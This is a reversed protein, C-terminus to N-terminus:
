EAGSARPGGPALRTSQPGLHIHAGTAKGPVAQWFAFYPIRNAELYQRLWMGEPQDPNLAVDVRGTHDFGLARHLATEGMASVPLPKGFRSQYASQVRAFREPGFQGDGEFQEAMGHDVLGHETVSPATVSRALRPLSAEAQAMAALQRTVDAVQQALDREKRAFELDASLAALGAPVALGGDVLKKTKEFAQERREVRRTAAALMEEAQAETLDRNRLSESLVAEDEADAVEEKAEDLQARPAAGAEVLWQLKQVRERAATLQQSEAAWAAASLLLGITVLGRLGM